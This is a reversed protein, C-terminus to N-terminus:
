DTNLGHCAKHLLLEFQQREEPTLASAMKQATETYIDMEEKELATGKKTVQLLTARGDDSCPVRQIYGRSELKSVMASASAKSVKMCEALETLRVGQPHELLAYLYDFESNTLEMSGSQRSVERWCFWLHWQLKKLDNIM